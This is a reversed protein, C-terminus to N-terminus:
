WWDLWKQRSLALYDASAQGVDITVSANYREKLVKVLKPWEPAMKGLSGLPLRLHPHQGDTDSVYVHGLRPGLDSDWIYEPSLNKVVGIHAYAMDLAFALGPVQRIIDRLINLQERNDPGMRLVVQLGKTRCDATLPELFAIYHDILRAKQDLSPPLRFQLVLLVAGLSHAAAAQAQCTAMIGETIAPYTDLELPL